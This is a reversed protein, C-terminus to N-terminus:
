IAQSVVQTRSIYVGLDSDKDFLANGAGKPDIGFGSDDSYNAQAEILDRLFLLSEKNGEILVFGDKLNMKIKIGSTVAEQCVIDPTKV